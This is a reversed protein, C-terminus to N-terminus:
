RRIIKQSLINLRRTNCNPALIGRVTTYQDGFKASTILVLCKGITFNTAPCPGTADGATVFCILLPLLIKTQDKVLIWTIRM